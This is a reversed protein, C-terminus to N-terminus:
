PAHFTRIDILNCTQRRNDADFLLCGVLIRTRCYTRSGLNVVIHTQQKGTGAFSIAILRAFWHYFVGLLLDDVHDLVVISSALNQNQCWQYMTTLTVITFQEFRHALLAVQMDTNIALHLLNLLAHLHVTVLGVVDFHDNVAYSYLTGIFTQLLGDLCSHFLAFTEDHNHVIVRPFDLM